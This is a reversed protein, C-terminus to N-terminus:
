LGAAGSAPRGFRLVAELEARAHMAVEVAAPPAERRPYLGKIKRAKESDVLHSLRPPQRCLACGKLHNPEGVSSAFLRQM